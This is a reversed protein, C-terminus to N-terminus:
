VLWGVTLVRVECIAFRDFFEGDIECLLGDTKQLCNLRMAKSFGVSNSTLRCRVVNNFFGPSVMWVAVSLRARQQCGGGPSCQCTRGVHSVCEWAIEAASRRCPPLFELPSFFSHFNVQFQSATAFAMSICCTQSLRRRKQIMVLM